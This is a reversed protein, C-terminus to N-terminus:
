VHCLARHGDEVAFPDFHGLRGNVDGFVASDAHRRDAEGSQLSDRSSRNQFKDSDTSPM